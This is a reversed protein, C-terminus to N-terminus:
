SANSQKTPAFKDLSENRVPTYDKGPIPSFDKVLDKAMFDGYKLVIYSRVKDDLEDTFRLQLFGSWTIKTTILPKLTADSAIEELLSEEGSFTMYNM